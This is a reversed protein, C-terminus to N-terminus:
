HETLQVTTTKGTGPFKTKKKGILFNVCLQNDFITHLQAAASKNKRPAKFVQPKRTKQPKQPFRDFWEMVAVKKYLVTRCPSFCVTKPFLPKVKLLNVRNINFGTMEMIEVNSILQDRPLPLPKANSM